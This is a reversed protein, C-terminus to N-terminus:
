LKQSYQSIVLFNLIFNSFLVMNGSKKIFFITFNMIGNLHSNNLENTSFKQKEKSDTIEMEKIFGIDSIM